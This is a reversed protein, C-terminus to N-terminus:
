FAHRDDVPVLQSRHGDHGNGPVDHTVPPLAQVPVGALSLHRQPDDGQRPKNDSRESPTLHMPEISTGTKV